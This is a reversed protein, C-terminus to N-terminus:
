PFLAYRGARKDILTGQQALKIAHIYAFSVDYGLMSCYVLRVLYERMQTQSLYLFVHDHFTGKWAEMYLAGVGVKIHRNRYIVEPHRKIRIDNKACFIQIHDYLFLPM